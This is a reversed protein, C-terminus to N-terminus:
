RRGDHRGVVRPGLNTKSLRLRFMGLRDASGKRISVPLLMPDGRAKRMCRTRPLGFPRGWHSASITGLATTVVAAAETTSVMFLTGIYARANGFMFTGSLEDWSACANNIIIPTGACAIAKPLPLYNHDAM